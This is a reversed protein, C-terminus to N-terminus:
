QRRVVIGHSLDYPSLSVIVRDGPLIQIKNKRLKGSPQALILQGQATEVKFKDHSVAIVTGEIQIHDGKPM